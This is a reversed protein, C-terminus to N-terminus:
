RGGKKNRVELGAALAAKGLSGHKAEVNQGAPHALTVIGHARDTIVVKSEVPLPIEHAGGDKDGVGIKQDIVNSAVETTKLGILQQMTQSKLISAIGASDLKVTPRAM